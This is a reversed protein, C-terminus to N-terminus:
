IRAIADMVVNKILRWHLMSPSLEELIKCALGPQLLFVGLLLRVLGYCNLVFYELLITVPSHYAENLVCGLGSILKSSLAGFLQGNLAEVAVQLTSAWEYLFHYVSFDSHVLVLEILM